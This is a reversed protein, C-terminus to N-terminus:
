AFPAEVAVVGLHSHSPPTFPLHSQHHPPTQRLGELDVKQVQAMSVITPGNDYTSMTMARDYDYSLSKQHGGNASTIGSANYLCPQQQQSHVSGGKVTNITNTTHHQHSPNLTTANSATTYPQEKEGTSDCGSDVYDKYDKPLTVTTPIVLQSPPRPTRSTRGGVAAGGTDQSKMAYPHQSQVTGNVNGGIIAATILVPEYEGSSSNLFSRHPSSHRLVSSAPPPTLSTQGYPNHGEPFAGDLLESDEDIELKQFGLQHVPDVLSERARTKNHNKNNKNTNNNRNNNNDNNRYSSQATDPRSVPTVLGKRQAVAASYQHQNNISPDLHQQHGYHQQYHTPSSTSRIHTSPLSIDRFALDPSQSKKKSLGFVDRFMQKVRNNSKNKSTYGEKRFNLDSEEDLPTTAGPGSLPSAAGALHGSRNRHIISNRRNLDTNSGNFWPDKSTTTPMSDHRQHQSKQSQQRRRTLFSFRSSFRGTKKEKEIFTPPPSVLQRQQQQHQELHLQQAQSISYQRRHRTAMQIKADDDEDDDDPHQLQRQIAQQQLQQIYQEHQWDSDRPAPAPTFEYTPYKNLTSSAAVPSPLQQFTSAHPQLDSTDGYLHIGALSDPDLEELQRWDSEQGIGSYFSDRYLLQDHHTMSKPLARPLAMTPDLGDPISDLYRQQAPTSTAAVAITTTTQQRSQNLLQQQQQQHQQLLMAPSTVPPSTRRQQPTHQTPLSNKRQHQQYQYQQQYPSSISQRHSNSLQQTQNKHLLQNLQQEVSENPYPPQTTNKYHPAFQSGHLELNNITNNNAQITNHQQWQSKDIVSRYLDEELAILERQLEVYGIIHKLKAEQSPPSTVTHRYLNAETLPAISTNLRQSVHRSVKASFDSVGTM